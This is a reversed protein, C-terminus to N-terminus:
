LFVRYDTKFIEALKQAMKKGLSRSGNEWASIWPQPCGLEKALDAQSLGDRVRLGRLVSGSKGYEVHVDRLVTEAPIFDDYRYEELLHKISEAKDQPVLYLSKKKGSDVTIQVAKTRRTKMPASM